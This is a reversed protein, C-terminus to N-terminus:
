QAKKADAKAKKEGQRFGYNFAVVLCNLLEEDNKRAQALLVALDTNKMDYRGHDKFNGSETEKFAKELGTM